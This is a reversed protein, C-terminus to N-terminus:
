ARTVRAYDLVSFLTGRSPVSQKRRHLLGDLSDAENVVGNASFDDLEFRCDLVHRRGLVGGSERPLDLIEGVFHVHV